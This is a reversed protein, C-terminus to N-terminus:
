KNCAFLSYIFISQVDYFKFSDAQKLFYNWDNYTTYKMCGDDFSLGIILM